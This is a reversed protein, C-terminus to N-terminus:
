VVARRAVLASGVQDALAVAVVRRDWSVPLGPTPVLVFRGLTQGRGQVVLDVEKGPLGMSDVGWRLAGMTVEGDKELRPRPGDAADAQFRVSRLSLLDKLEYGVATVVDQPAADDAVLEAVAHIRAIDASSRDAASRHRNSRVALDSVFLGVVGLLVATELDSRHNIALSYFPRTHFFDFSLFASLAALAGALRRGMAAVAVVVAVLILAVNTADVQDRLPILAAAVGVPAVVGALLPLRLRLSHTV